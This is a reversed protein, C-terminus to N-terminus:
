DVREPAADLVVKASVAIADPMLTTDAWDGAGVGFRLRSVTARAELLPRVGPRWTLRLTVPATTGRLQLQGHALYRGGGLPVFGHATYRAEPFHEVAFFAADRLTDDRERSDSDVSALRVAVDLRADQPSAPDFRVKTEFDPFRGTFVAGDYEGAFALRSGAAQRYDDAWALPSALLLAASLATARARREAM